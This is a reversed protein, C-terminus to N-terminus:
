LSEFPTGQVPITAPRRASKVSSLVTYSLTRSQKEYMGVGFFNWCRVKEGQEKATASAVSPVLMRSFSRFFSFSLSLSCGHPNPSSPHQDQSKQTATKQVHPSNLEFHRTCTRCVTGASRDCRAAQTPRKDRWVGVLKEGHSQKIYRICRQTVHEDLRNKGFVVSICLHSSSRCM